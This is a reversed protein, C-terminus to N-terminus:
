SEETAEIIVGEDASLALRGAVHEGERDLATSLVVRGHEALYVERPEDTLNLAIVRREGGGARVYVLCHEDSAGHLAFDGVSLAESAARVAILRRNLTLSSREDALQAAVNVTAREESVPLWLDAPDATSFGGTAGDDWPMPIRMPDRTLHGSMRGFCDRERESPVSQNVMGLEDGYYLTPTGRATLLLMTAVRAQARGVRSALRSRDHNGLALIPWAGAPLAADLGSMVEALAPAEWPREILQFAFPMHLGNLEPGFFSAWLHWDMAEVEGIAVRDGPYEDLAGRIKALVDHLDPHMRDNVHLQSAFDEHQLDFANGEGTPNPPNDRLQPDKMLMHAVDIRFGDAGRDLWFRLVDLMAAEVEPNRWNLDPQEKLHSHLYFQETTEDWEWMSGGTESMWNNPLQEGPRADAWVYWDRKPNERSSRSEQFWPHQDSTHNPIFDVIIRIGRAHAEAVLRDFADLDGFRPEVETHQAVDFGQDLLPSRFFPGVWIAGAGLEHVYDLSDALGALDGIGDGDGDKVSPLNTQYVVARRWWAAGDVAGGPRGAVSTPQEASM